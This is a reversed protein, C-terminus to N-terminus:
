YERLGRVMRKYESSSPGKEARMVRKFKKARHPGRGDPHEPLERRFKIHMLNSAAHADVNLPSSPAIPSLPRSHVYRLDRNVKSMKRPDLGKGGRRGRIAAYVNAAQQQAESDSIDEKIKKLKKGEMKRIVKEAGRRTKLIVKKLINEIIDERQHSLLTSLSM